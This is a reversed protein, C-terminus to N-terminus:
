VAVEGCGPGLGGPNDPDVFDRWHRWGQPCHFGWERVNKGFCFLTWTDPAPEDLRHACHEDRFVVDGAVIRRSGAQTHEVMGGRLMISLSQAPHDHLARDDDRRLIHHLYVRDDGGLPTLHWRLMYPADPSGIVFDPPRLQVQPIIFAALVNALAPSQWLLGPLNNGSM